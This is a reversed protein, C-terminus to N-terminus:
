QDSICNSKLLMVTSSILYVVLTYILIKNHLIINWFKRQQFIQLLEYSLRLNMDKKIFVIIIFLKLLMSEYLTPNVIQHLLIFLITLRRM